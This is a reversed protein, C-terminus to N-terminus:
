RAGKLVRCWVSEKEATFSTQMAQPPEAQQLSHPFFSHLAPLAGQPLRGEIVTTIFGTRQLRMEQDVNAGAENLRVWNM